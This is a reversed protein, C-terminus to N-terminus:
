ASPALTKRCVRCHYYGPYRVMRRHRIITLHRPGCDCFYPFTTLPKRARTAALDYTHCRNAPLGFVTMVYRWQRGHPRVKQGFVQWCVLHALEHGVTHHIFHDTNALLLIPNLRIRNGSSAALGAIKGRIDYTVQPIPFVRGWRERATDLLAGLREEVRAQLAPHIDPLKKASM